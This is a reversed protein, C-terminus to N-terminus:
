TPLFRLTTAWKATEAAWKVNDESRQAVLETIEIRVASLGKAREYRHNKQENMTKDRSACGTLETKEAHIAEQM